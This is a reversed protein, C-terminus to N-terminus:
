RCSKVRFVRTRALDDDAPWGSLLDQAIQRAETEDRCLAFLCSGSGSMLCGAAGLTQMRRYLREVPPCIRMAPEQLRNHLSRGLKDIDGEALAELASQPNGIESYPFDKGCEKYAEATSAGQPPKALVIDFTQGVPVPRVIEGRGTCFAAPTQFFFGVDSGLEAGMSSLRDASLGVEWLENLGALAAAADSSGGGLGAAWPIRKTLRIAAGRTCGTKEKLLHAAKLVLNDPGTSLDPDDCTLSVDGTDDPVIAIEDYIDVAL